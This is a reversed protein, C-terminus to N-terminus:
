PDSGATKGSIPAPDSGTAATHIASSSIKVPVDDACSPAARGMAEVLDEIADGHDLDRQAACVAAIARDLDAQTIGSARDRKAEVDRRLAHTTAQEIVQAIMAGNVLHRLELDLMVPRRDPPRDFSRDLRLDADAGDIEPQIWAQIRGRVVLRGPTFIARAVHAALRAIGDDERADIPRGRLHIAAIQRAADEGPRDVRVKRDVRGERTVAPDLIDPRNTALLFIASPEDFGDMEALFQPVTTANISVNPGRDRGGLLADAEDLFVVSPHGHARHFERTAAFMARIQSESEGIWKSILEPGKLYVFGGAGMRDRGHARAISTAAAKALLTKGTGPPGYLLIGKVPRKGYAKFLAPHRFPMEIAEQLQAKAEELGGVDDWDVATEPTDAHEAPPMGLSGIVHGLGADVIVREGIRPLKAGGVKIARRVQDIKVEILDPPSVDQVVAVLGTPRDAELVEIAQMTLRHVLVQRGVQADPCTQVELLGGMSLSVLMSKDTRLAVITGVMKPEESIRRLHDELEAIRTTLDAQGQDQGPYGGYGDYYGSGAGGYRPPPPDFRPSPPYDPYRPDYAPRRPPVTM